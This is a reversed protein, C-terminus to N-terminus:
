LQKLYDILEEFTGHNCDLEHDSRNILYDTVLYTQMGLSGAALVDEDMDNGVRLCESAPVGIKELIEEYYAPNPKCAGSNKYNTVLDFADYQLGVWGLRTEVACPPFLPNTALIVQQAKERALAVAEKALPNEKVVSKAGHFENTYFTDFKVEDDSAKKQLLEDFTAWFAECNTRSRDNTIMAKTGKWLAPVMSEPEYGWERAKAALLKIYVETFADNDMSVLTGDLDFLIAKISM